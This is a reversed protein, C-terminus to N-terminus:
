CLPVVMTYLVGVKIEDGNQFEIVNKGMNAGSQMSLFAQTIQSAAYIHVPHPDTLGDVNTGFRGVIEELIEHLEQRALEYHVELDVSAFMISKSFAAMPLVSNANIDRKGIEIFRGLPAICQLSYQLLLGSLCNLVVDVGRGSTAESVQYCFDDNRSSFIHTNPIAYRDILLRKKEPSGVTAYVQAGILQAIQIAAQGVGGAAAHILVIEGRSLRALRKLSYWATVFASPLAAASTFSLYPPIKVAEDSKLRLFTAFSGATLCVVRDGLDFPADPGKRRVIGAAEFGLAAGPVVGLAILVDKFSLGAAYVEVEINDGTLQSDSCRSSTKFHLTDLMGPTGVRLELCKNSHVSIPEMQLSPASTSKVIIENLDGAPAVRGIQVMDNSVNFEFDCQSRSEFITRKAVRITNEVISGESSKAPLNLVIIKPYGSESCMTRAFGSVMHRKPHSPKLAAGQTLWMMRTCSLCIMKLLGYTTEGLHDFFDVHLEPLFFVIKEKVAEETVQDLRMIEFLTSFLGKCELQLRSAISQQLKSADNVVIIGHNNTKLNPRPSPATQVQAVFGTLTHYAERDSDRFALEIGDFGASKLLIDWKEESVLPSEQRFEETSLWWGQLLGTWFQVSLHKFDSLEICLLRGGPKLLKRVNLLTELLNPTAHLVASAVVIDYRCEFGQALPDNGIDLKQFSMRSAHEEFRTKAKEFFAPSIDTYMYEKYRKVDDANSGSRYTLAELMGITASGVGAGVELVKLGPSEHSLLALYTGLRQAMPSLLTDYYEQALNGSFLIQLADVRRRLIDVLSQGIELVVRSRIHLNDTTSLLSEFESDTLRRSKLTSEASNAVRHMWTLYKCLQSHEEEPLSIEKLSRSTKQIFYLSLAESQDLVRDHDVQHDCALPDLYKQIELPSHLSLMPQWVIRSCLRQFGRQKKAASEFSEIATGRNGQLYIMPEGAGDVALASTEVDRYAKLTIRSTTDFHEVDSKRSLANSLWLAQIQTFAIPPVPKVGGESLGVIMLQFVGDLLAPHLLRSSNTGPTKKQYAEDLSLRASVDGDHNVVASDIVRFSPGYQFGFEAMAGYIREKHVFAFCKQAVDQLDRGAMKKAHTSLEVQVTGHGIEAWLDGTVSSLRFQYSRMERSDGHLCRLSIHIETPRADDIVVAKLIRVDKLSYGTVAAKDVVLQRVAEVAM